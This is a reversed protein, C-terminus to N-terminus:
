LVIGVGKSVPCDDAKKASWGDLFCVCALSASALKTATMDYLIQDETSYFLDTNSM